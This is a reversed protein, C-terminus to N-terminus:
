LRRSSCRTRRTTCARTRVTHCPHYPPHHTTPPPHHTTPPPTTPPPHHTTPPPQPPRRSPLPLKPVSRGPRWVCVGCVCRVCCVECDFKKSLNCGPTPMFDGDPCDPLSSNDSHHNCPCVPISYPYCSEQIAGDGEQNSAFIDQWVAIPNGGDCSMNEDEHCSIIDEASLEVDKTTPDPNPNLNPDPDPDPDPDPLGVDYEFWVLRGM